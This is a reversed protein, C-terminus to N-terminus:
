LQWSGGCSRYLPQSDMFRLRRYPTGWPETRPGSRNMKYLTVRYTM